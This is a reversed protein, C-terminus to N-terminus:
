HKLFFVSKGLDLKFCELCTDCHGSCKFSDAPIRTENGAQYWAVPLGSPNYMPMGEWSSLVLKFNHNLGQQELLNTAWGHRKTFCLFTTQPFMVALRQMEVLYQMSPIDGSSHWRFYEPRKTGIYNAIADFYARPNDQWLTLNRTLAARTEKYMRWAKMAYCAKACPANEICTIVPPLSVSPINGLKSNKTPIHIQQM